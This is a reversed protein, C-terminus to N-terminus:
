DPCPRIIGIKNLRENEKENKVESDPRPRPIGIKKEKTNKTM